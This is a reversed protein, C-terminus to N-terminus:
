CSSTSWAQAACGRRRMLMGNLLMAAQRLVALQTRSVARWREAVQWQAGASCVERVRSGCGAPADCKKAVTLYPGTCQVRLRGARSWGARHSVAPSGPLAAAPRPAGKVLPQLVAELDGKSMDKPLNGVYLKHKSQSPAM